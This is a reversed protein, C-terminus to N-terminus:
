ILKEIEAVVLAPSEMPIYHNRGPLCVDRGSPFCAALGPWTPSASLDFESAAEAGARLVTVPVAIRGLKPYLDADPATAETYISAEVEPPCALTLGDEGPVLGFECYDRLVEPSWGAFPPRGQYSAFM